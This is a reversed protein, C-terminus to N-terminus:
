ACNIRKLFEDVSGYRYEIDNKIPGYNKVIEIYEEKNLGAAKAALYAETIMNYEGSRRVREYKGWLIWKPNIRQM